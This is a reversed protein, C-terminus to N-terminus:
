SSRSCWCRTLLLVHVGSPSPLLGQPDRTPASVLIIDDGEVLKLTGIIRPEKSPLKSAEEGLDEVFAM